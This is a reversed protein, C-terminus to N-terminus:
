SNIKGVQQYSAIVAKRRCYYILFLSLAVFAGGGIVIGAIAGGNLPADVVYYGPETVLASAVTAGVQTEVSTWNPDELSYTHKIVPKRLPSANHKISLTVAGGLNQPSRGSVEVVDSAVDNLGRPVLVTTSSVALGIDLPENFTGPAVVVAAVNNDASLSGGMAGILATKAKTHTVVILGKQSRNSFNNNRTCMYSFIGPVTVQKPGMDFYTGADDFEDMDGGFQGGQSALTALQILSQNDWGLFNLGSKVLSKPYNAGLAGYTIPNTVFTSEEFTKSILGVVNSRDTGAQGQGDNNNPNTNSGTWQFHIYDGVSVVLRNPVFDYEVAPYVQVINGRKGRVNINHITADYPIGPPLQSRSRIAFRHSRDEFTRSYQATNIALQLKFANNNNLLSGFIDVQPNNKFLYGRKTKDGEPINYQQHIPYLTADNANPVNYAKDVGAGISTDNEWGPFDLTTVNYRLRFVCREHVAHSPLTWNYSVPYGKHTNGLHNDRTYINQQCDPPPIGHSPAQTWVGKFTKGGATVSAECQEKTIPIYGTATGKLDIYEQPYVCHYRGVVNESHAKYAACRQPTDTLIAIDRWITPRWYPYYDREEACEYGYRQDNPQQRTFVAANKSNENTPLQNATFLGYNRKTRRCTMYSDYSEHRGYRPDTDCDYNECNTLTVPITDELSGDRIRDDCAYQLIFECRLNGNGCGHQATWEIYMQTGEYYYLSGVNYGGRNNNESDFLRNQNQVDRGTGKLRNNSGRPSHLYVDGEVLVFLLTSTALLGLLLGASM